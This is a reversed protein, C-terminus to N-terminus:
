LLLHRHNGNCCTHSDKILSNTLFKTRKRWAAGFRCYDCIWFGCETRYSELFAYFVAQKFLWSGAPNELWFVIDMSICLCLISVLWAVCSNGELVKVKMKDSMDPIGEPYDRTRVPPTIAVSFSACVPSAGFGWFLGAKIVSAIDKRLQDDNLDQSIGDLLEFTVCWSQLAVQKAIGKEGSYLDLYGPKRPFFQTELKSHFQSADLYRLFRVCSEAEPASMQHHVCSFNALFIEVESATETKVADPVSVSHGTERLHCTQDNDHPVPNLSNDSAAHFFEDYSAGSFDKAARSEALPATSDSFCTTESYLESFDPLGSVSQFGLGNADLWADFEEFERQELSFWWFPLAYSAKRVTRGRTPDDAPNM